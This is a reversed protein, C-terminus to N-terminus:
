LIEAVTGRLESLAVRVDHGTARERVDVAGDELTRKGVTVRVPCGILDADAFKEGARLDRDDLLVEYSESLEKEAAEAAGQIEANGADLSVVHVDFPAISRPWIIGRDDHHQEIAAAMVRGPGIGYSGMVIPKENDDEDLYTAGIAKPFRTGLKFIHGVEIAPQISLRGGCLPCGDGDKVQRIEAYRADFDRGPEVGRLHWGDRNAGVVYTGATIGKDAVVEVPADVPGISGGDAGFTARIEDEEAPRVATGGLAGTLREENLRDDGRVLALVVRDGTVVPMAKITARPDVGLQASVAEITKANPTAVPEPASKEASVALGLLVKVAPESVISLLRRSAAIKEGAPIFGPAGACVPVTSMAFLPESAPTKESVLSWSELVSVPVGLGAGNEVL